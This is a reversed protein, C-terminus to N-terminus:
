LQIDKWAIYRNHIDLIMRRLIRTTFARVTLLRPMDFISLLNKCFGNSCKKINLYFSLSMMRMDDMMFDHM